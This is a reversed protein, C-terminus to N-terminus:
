KQLTSSLKHVTKICIIELEYYAKLYVPCTNKYMTNIVRIDNLVQINGNKDYLLILKFCATPEYCFAATHFSCSNAGYLMLQSSRHALLWSYARPVTEQVGGECHITQTPIHLDNNFTFIWAKPFLHSQTDSLVPNLDQSQCLRQSSLCSVPEINEENIFDIDISISKQNIYQM